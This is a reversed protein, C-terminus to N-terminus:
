LLNRKGCHVYGEPPDLAISRPGDLDTWILLKRSTGDLRAMEIRNTGTDTWYLNSSVWDVALGEPFQLGHLVIHQLASGNM